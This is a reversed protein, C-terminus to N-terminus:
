KGSYRMRLLESQKQKNVREIRMRIELHKSLQTALQNLVDRNDIQRKTATIVTIGLSSLANRRRADREIKKSGTHFEDSDYELALKANPWFLDCYFAKGFVAQRLGHSTSIKHNLVPAPLGFGGLRKPLTLVLAIFSEAPSASLDLVYRAAVQAATAYAGKYREASIALSKASTIPVAKATSTASSTKNNAIRYTGALKLGILAPEIPNKFATALRCFCLEPSCVYIGLGVDVFPRAPLSAPAAVANRIQKTRLRLIDKPSMIRYPSTLEPFLKELIAIDATSPKNSSYLKLARSCDRKNPPRMKITPHARWYELSSIGDLFIAM